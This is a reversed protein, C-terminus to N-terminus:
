TEVGGGSGRGRPSLDQGCIGVAGVLGEIEQELVGQHTDGPRMIHHKEPDHIDKKEPDAKLPEEGQRLSPRQEGPQKQESQEREIRKEEHM